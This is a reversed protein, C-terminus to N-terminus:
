INPPTPPFAYKQTRHFASPVYCIEQHCDAHKHQHGRYQRVMVMTLNQTQLVVHGHAVTRTSCVARFLTSGSRFVTARAATDGLEVADLGIRQLFRDRGVNRKTRKQIRHAVYPQMQPLMGFRGCRGKRRIDFPKMGNAQGQGLPQPSRRYSSGSRVSPNRVNGQVEKERHFFPPSTTHRSAQKAIPNCPSFRLKAM